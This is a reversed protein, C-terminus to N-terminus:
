DREMIQTKDVIICLRAFSARSLPPASMFVEGCLAFTMSRTSYKASARSLQYMNAWKSDVVSWM